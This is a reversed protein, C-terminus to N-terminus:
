TGGASGSGTRSAAAVVQCALEPRDDAWWQTGVSGGCLPCGIAVLSSGCDVPMIVHYRSVEIEVPDDGPVGRKLSAIVAAAREAADGGPQWRPDTAIVSLVDDSM